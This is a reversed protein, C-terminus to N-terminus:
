GEVHITEIKKRDALYQQYNDSFVMREKVVEDFQNLLGIILECGERVAHHGGDNTTAYDTFESKKTFQNFMVNSKRAILIRAGCQRAVELDLVDDFFFLVESPAFNHTECFTTFIKAKNKAKSYVAHFSERNALQLAAPNNEGTIIASVPVVGNIRWLAYRMLNTGMADVESFLSGENGAKYGDNFVGDWDFLIAKVKKVKTSFVSLPSIFEGGEKEFYKLVIQSM